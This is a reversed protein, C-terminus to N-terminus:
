EYDNEMMEYINKNKNIYLLLFFNIFLIIFLSSSVLIPIYFYDFGYKINTIIFSFIQSFVFISFFSFIIKNFYHKIGFLLSVAIEKKVKYLFYLISINVVLITIIFSFAGLFYVFKNYNFFSALSFKEVSIVEVLEAGQELANNKIIDFTKKINKKNSGDVIFVEGNVLRSNIDNTTYYTLQNKLSINEDKKLKGIVDYDAGNIYLKNNEYNLEYGIIAKNKENSSIKFNEGYLFEFDNSLLLAEYIYLGSERPTILFSVDKPIENKTLFSFDIYKIGKIRFVISHKNFIGDVRSDISYLKFISLAITNISISFITFFLFILIKFNKNSIWRIFPTLKKFM